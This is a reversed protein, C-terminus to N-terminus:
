RFPQEHPTQLPRLGGSDPADHLDLTCLIVRCTMAHPPCVMVTSTRLRSGAVLSQGTFSCGETLTIIRWWATRSASGTRGCPTAAGMTTTPQLVCLALSVSCGLPISGAKIRCARAVGTVWSWCNFIAVHLIRAHCSARTPYPAGTRVVYAADHPWASLPLVEAIQLRTCPCVCQPLYNLFSPM